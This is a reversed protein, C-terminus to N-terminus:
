KSRRRRIVAGALALGGLALGYTSPEPVATTSFGSIAWQRDESGAFTSEDTQFVFRLYVPATTSTAASSETTPTIRSGGTFGTLTTSLDYSTSYSAFQVQGWNSGDTSFEVWGFDYDTEAELSHILSVSFPSGLNIATPSTLTAYLDDIHNTVWAGEVASYTFGYGPTNSAAIWGQDGTSFNLTFDDPAASAAAVLIVPLLSRLNM